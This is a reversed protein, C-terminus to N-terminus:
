TSTRIPVSTSSRVRLQTPIYECITEGSYGELREVLHATARKGIMFPDQAVSTLPVELHAAINIDDFGALSIDDPIRLDLLRMSRMALVAIYDNIAFIATPRPNANQLYNKIQLLEPSKSDVSARLADTAHIEDGPAGVRWPEAPELQAERMADVYAEYRQKVPLLHNEQHTLFIIREHGMDILHTMLAKAGAYNESTVCDCDIGSIQRDMVVIPLRIEQYGAAAQPDGSSAAANPWLLVGCISEGKLRNLVEIEEEYSQVYNLIVQYGHSKAENEAGTLMLLHSESDFGYTVFAILRDAVSDQPAYAVFAGRGAAREILGEVEAQQLALRVTTRSLGLHESFQSESPIRTANSWRGSVILHRLQNYLQVHLSVFSNQSIVIDTVKNM